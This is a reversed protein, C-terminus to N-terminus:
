FDMGPDDEDLSGEEAGSFNGILGIMGIMEEQDDTKPKGIGNGNIPNTGIVQREHDASELERPSQEAASRSSIPQQDAVGRDGNGANSHPNQSEQDSQDPQDAPKPPEPGKKNWWSRVQEPTPLGKMLDGEAWWSPQAGEVLALGQETEKLLKASMVLFTKHDSVVSQGVNGQEAIERQTFGERNPFEQHLDYLGGLIKRHTDSLNVVTRKCVGTFIRYAAAYDDPVAEIATRSGDGEGALDLLRRNKQELWAHAAMVSLLNAWLRAGHSVQDDDLAFDPHRLPFVVRRHATLQRLGEQWLWQERSYDLSAADPLLQASVAAAHHKVRGPYDPLEAVLLRTQLQEDTKNRITPIAITVPGEVVITRTTMNGDADKASVIKKASGKSLM